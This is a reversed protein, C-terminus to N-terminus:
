NSWAFKDNRLDEPLPKVLVLDAAQFRGGPRLVRAIEKFAGIKSAALNLVGNSIVLDAWGNPIPLSEAVGEEFTINKLNSKQCGDRAVALMDSCLDVAIVRGTDGVYHAAIQADFGVGCGVDVVRQGQKPEGMCFPNGVGVFRDVVNDPIRQVFDDPYRLQEVSSRGVPYNFQGVPQRAVEAYRTRLAAYIQSADM